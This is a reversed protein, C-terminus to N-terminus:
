NLKKGYFLPSQSDVRDGRAKIPKHIATRDCLREVL